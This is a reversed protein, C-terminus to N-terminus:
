RLGLNARAYQRLYNGNRGLRRAIEAWGLGERRWGIIDGREVATIRKGKMPGTAVVTVDTGGKVGSEAAAFRAGAGGAGIM